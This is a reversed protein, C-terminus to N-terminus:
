IDHFPRTSMMNRYGYVFWIIVLGVNVLIKVINSKNMGREQSIDSGTESFFLTKIIRIM